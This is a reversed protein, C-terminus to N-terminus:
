SIVQEVSSDREPDLVRGTLMIIGNVARVETDGRDADMDSAISDKRVARRGKRIADAEAESDFEVLVKPPGGNTAVKSVKM